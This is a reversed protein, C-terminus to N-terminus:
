PKHAAFSMVVANPSSVPRVLVPGPVAFQLARQGEPWAGSGPITIASFMELVQQKEIIWSMHFQLSGSSVRGACQGAIPLNAVATRSSPTEFLPDPHAHHEVRVEQQCIGVAILAEVIQGGGDMVPSGGASFKSWAVICLQPAIPGLFATLARVHM